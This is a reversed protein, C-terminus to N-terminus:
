VIQVGNYGSLFRPVDLQELSIRFNLYEVDDIEYPLNTLKSLKVGHFDEFEKNNKNIIYQLMKNYGHIKSYPAYTDKNEQEMQIYAKSPLSYVRHGADFFLISALLDQGLDKLMNLKTLLMSNKLTLFLFNIDIFNTLQIASSEKNENLIRHRDISLSSIGKGSIVMNEKLASSLYLDWSDMMSINPNIELFYDKINDNLIVTNRYYSISKYDDWHIFNYIVNPVEEFNFTRDVNNQDFVYYSVDLMGSQKSILDKVQDLINKNKYSYIFVKVSKM